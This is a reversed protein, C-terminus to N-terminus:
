WSLTKGDVIVPSFEVHADECYLGISGALYPNQMDTFNVLRKGDVNVIINAGSQSVQVSWPLMIPFNPSTGTALFRQSGPYAPDEKGLEWGNPKLVLYYFHTNDEYAWLFWAVEWPNPRSGMRLQALTTMTVSATIDGFAEESTVLCSSTESPLLSRQPQMSLNAGVPEIVGYGGFQDKWDGYTQGDQWTTPTAPKHSKSGFSFLSMM